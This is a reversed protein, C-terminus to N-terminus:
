ILVPGRIRNDEQNRRYAKEEAETMYPAGSEKTVPQVGWVQSIDSGWNDTRRRYLGYTTWASEITGLLMNRRNQGVQGALSAYSQTDALHGRGLGLAAYQYAYRQDNLTDARGEAQRDAFTLMGSRSLQQNRKWAANECASAVLCKLALTERLRNRCAESTKDFIDAWSASLASYQPDQKTLGFADDVFSKEYPWFKKAHDHVMDALKQYRRSIEARMDAVSSNANRMWLYIAATIAADIGAHWRMASAQNKSAQVYAASSITGM